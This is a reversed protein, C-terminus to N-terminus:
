SNKVIHLIDNPTSKELLLGHETIEAQRKCAVPYNKELYSSVSSKNNAIKGAKRAELREHLEQLKPDKVDTQKPRKRKEERCCLYLVYDKLLSM